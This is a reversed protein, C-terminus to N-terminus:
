TAITINAATTNRTIPKQLFSRFTNTYFKYDAKTLDFTQQKPVSAPFM